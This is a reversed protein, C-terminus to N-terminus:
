NENENIIVTKGTQEGSKDEIKVFYMGPKVGKFTYSKKRIPDSKMLVEGRIPNNTTLYYTFDPTGSLVTVTIDATVGAEDHNYKVKCDYQINQSYVFVITLFSLCLLVLIKKM